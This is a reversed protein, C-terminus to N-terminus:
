KSRKKSTTLEVASWRRSRVDQQSEDFLVFPVNILTTKYTQYLRSCPAELRPLQPKTIGGKRQCFVLFLYVYTQLCRGRSFKVSTFIFEQHFLCNQQSKGWSIRM